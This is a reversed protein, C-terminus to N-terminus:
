RRRGSWRKRSHPKTGGAKRGQRQEWLQLALTALALKGAHKGAFRRGAPSLLMGGLLTGFRPVPM